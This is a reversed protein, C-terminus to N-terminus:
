VFTSAAPATSLFCVRGTSRTSRCWSAGRRTREISAHQGPMLVDIAACCRDIIEPYKMDLSVRVRWVRRVRSICGDGLYLGLVYCYAAAPLASFDHFVGCPSGRVLRPRLQPRCRWDRVTARPVGIQRGIACDNVGAAILRKAVEFQDASRLAWRTEGRSVGLSPLVGSLNPLACAIRDGRGRAHRFPMRSPKLHWQESLAHPNM